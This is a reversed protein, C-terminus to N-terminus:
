KVRYVSAHLHWPFLDMVACCMDGGSEMVWWGRCVTRVHKAQASLEATEAASDVGSLQLPPRVSPVFTRVYRVCQIYLIVCGGSVLLCICSEAAETCVYTYADNYLVYTCVYTCVPSCIGEHYMVVYM